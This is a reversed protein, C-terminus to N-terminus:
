LCRPQQVCLMEDCCEGGGETCLDGSAKCEDQQRNKSKPVWDKAEAHRARRLSRARILERELWAIREDLAHAKPDAAETKLSESNSVRLSLVRLVLLVLLLWVMWSVM